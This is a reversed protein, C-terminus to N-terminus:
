CTQPSIPPMQPFSIGKAARVAARCRSSAITIKPRPRPPRLARKKWSVLSRAHFYRADGNGSFSCFAFDALGVEDFNSESAALAVGGATPATNDAVTCNFLRVARFPVTELYVAGGKGGSVNGRFLCGDIIGGGRLYIGGGAAEAGSKEVYGNGAFECDTLTVECGDAFVAGGVAAFNGTFRCGRADLKVNGDAGLLYLAGGFGACNGSFVCDRLTIELLGSPAGNEGRYIANFAGGYGYHYGSFTCGSFTLSLNNRLIFACQTTMIDPIVSSINPPSAPDVTEGGNGRFDINQFTIPMAAGAATGSLMFSADTFVANRSLGSKVTLGKPLQVAGRPMPEFTIDGVTLVDGDKADAVAARWEALSEIIGNEASTLLALTFFLAAAVALSLSFRLIKKM